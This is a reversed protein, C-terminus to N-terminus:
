GRFRVNMVRTRESTRKTGCASQHLAARIRNTAGDLCPRQIPVVNLLTDNLETLWQRRSM